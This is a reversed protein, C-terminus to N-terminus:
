ILVCKGNKVDKMVKKFKVNKLVKGDTYKVSVKDNRGIDKLADRKAPETYYSNFYDPINLPRDSQSALYADLADKDTPDYGQDSAGMMLSKAMGWKAPNQSNNYIVKRKSYVYDGLKKDKIFDESALFDFFYRLVKGAVEFSEAEMSVKRPIVDLCIEDVTYKTWDEIMEDRYTMAYNVFMEIIFNANGEEIDAINEAFPSKFFDQAVVEMATFYIDQIDEANTFLEDFDEEDMQEYDEVIIDNDIRQYRIDFRKLTEQYMKDTDRRKSLELDSKEFIYIYEALGNEIGYRIYDDSVNKLTQADKKITIFEDDIETIQGAWNKSLDGNDLEVGDKVNVYDGIKM